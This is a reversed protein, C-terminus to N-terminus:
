KIIKNIRGVGTVGVGRIGTEMALGLEGSGLGESGLRVEGTGVWGRRGLGWSKQGGRGWGGSKFRELGLEMGESGLGFGELGRVGIKGHSWGGWWLGRVGIM